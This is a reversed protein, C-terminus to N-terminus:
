RDLVTYGSPVAFLERPPEGRRINKLRYEVTGIRPDVYRSYVVVRLASSEWREDTITLARDNGVEGIPVVRTTKHGEVALGEM